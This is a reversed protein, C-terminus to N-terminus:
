EVMSNLEALQEPTGVNHWIGGFHEGTLQGRAVAPDYLERMPQPGDHAGAFFAPSYASICGFTLREPGATLLGQEDIGFDGGVHWPPNDVMVLHGLKDGLEGPLRRYDYDTFIDANVVVFPAEGLLPLAHRIGGATGLLQEERSFVVEIGYRSGDGLRSVMQDALYHVNIVARGFGSAALAYLQHEILAHEGVRLLPKPVRETLPRMRQGYGAALIMVNM